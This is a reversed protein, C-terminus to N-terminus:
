GRRSLLGEDGMPLRQKLRNERILWVDLPGARERLGELLAM